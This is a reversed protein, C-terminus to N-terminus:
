KCDYIYINQTSNRANENPYSAMSIIKWKENELILVRNEISKNVAVDKNENSYEFSVYVMNELATVKLNTIKFNAKKYDIPEPNEKMWDGVFKSLDAWGNARLLIKPEVCIWSVRNDQVFNLSWSKFDKEYFTRTENEIVKVIDANDPAKNKEQCSVIFLSISILLLYIIKKM